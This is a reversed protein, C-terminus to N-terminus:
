NSKGCDCADSYLLPQWISGIDTDIWPEGAQYPVRSIATRIRTGKPLADFFAGHAHWCAAALRQGSHGRRAGPKHSDLVTLTVAFKPNGRRDHGRSEFRKFMINSDFKINAINLAKRIELETAKIIM